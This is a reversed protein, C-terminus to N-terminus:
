CCGTGCASNTIQSKFPISKGCGDFIGFHHSFDGLFTFHDVFRTEKLMLFTNGCVLSVKNTHFCHHGDLNFMNPCTAISGKYIVAQGYDECDPELEDIKWLRYTASYFDIGKCAEELEKNQISVPSSTVLRPDEFGSVKALRLFDNWYLAGSLCEGWLVSQAKLPAPVRISSYVDSFYFEGGSKLLRYVQKMVAEKDPSLNVVCNSVIVDFSNPQLEALENLTEIFGQLFLTNAKQYNFRQRHWDVYKHAVEIQNDTMDVGVVNGSEGVLQALVYVDQGSGCGLDLVSMGELVDPAIFGCGYYKSKVEEHVNSLLIRQTSSPIGCTTCANTKLDSSQKLIDSYYEIVNTKINDYKISNEYTAKHNM